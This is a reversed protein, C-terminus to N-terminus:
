KTGKVRKDVHGDDTLYSYMRIEPEVFEKMIRGGLEDKM